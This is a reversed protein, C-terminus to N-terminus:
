SSAAMVDGMSYLGPSKGVLWAAARLAGAAFTDRSHATHRITITEGPGSFHIEHQGVLEGMRVAHVGIQGPPRKGVQGHRGFIAHEGPAPGTPPQASSLGRPDASPPDFVRRPAGTARAATIEDVLALATGSPADVKHRHHTEIIEVDYPGGLDTTLKGVIDLLAQIGVSFNAAKVIPIVQAAEEIRALQQRTHGTAGTVMPLGREKCVGLWAMTGSAVTFDILVGCDVALKDVVTVDVDGVPMTSGPPLPGPEEREARRSEPGAETSATLPGVTASPSEILAAAIEFRDDQSALRLVCQGMRGAAGAVALRIM